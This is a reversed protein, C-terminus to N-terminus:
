AVRALRVSLTRGDGLDFTQTGNEGTGAEARSRPDHVLEVALTESAILSGHVGIAQALLRDGSSGVWLRIREEVSLGSSKRLANIRNIAERALGEAVLDDDLETDLWVVYRGDTEVDFDARSEVIVQVDEPHLEIRDGDLELDVKQGARLSALSQAPLAEIGKAAAKMRAGLRPGLSKFNDKARM